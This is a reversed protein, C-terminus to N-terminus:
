KYKKALEPLLHRLVINKGTNRAEFLLFEDKQKQTIKGPDTVIESEFVKILSLVHQYEDSSESKIKRQLNKLINLSVEFDTSCIYMFALTLKIESNIHFFDKFTNENLLGNLKSCAGKLNNEFYCIMAEYIGLLVKGHADSEDLIEVRGKEESIESIRGSKQLYSLRSILFAPTNCINNYLLITSLKSNVKQFFKESNGADGIKFYYEFCLFDLPTSWTKFSSVIPLEEILKYTNNLLQEVSVSDRLPVDCFIVLQLNIFNRVIEVQRSPNLHHHDNIENRLFMLTELQDASRSFDYSAFQQNFNGLIEESRELSLSFAIHRNFLQSYYFYKESFLNIKKLASYVSFLENHMDYALLEKELKLLFATVLERPESVCKEPIENLKMLLEDRGVNM